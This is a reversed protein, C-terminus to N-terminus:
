AIETEIMGGPLKEEKRGVIQGLIDNSINKLEKWKM